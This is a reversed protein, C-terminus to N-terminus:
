FVNGNDNRIKNDPYIDILSYNLGFSM